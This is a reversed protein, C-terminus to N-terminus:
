GQHNGLLRHHCQAAHSTRSENHHPISKAKNARDAEDRSFSIREALGAMEQGQLEYRANSDELEHVNNRLEREYKKQETIDTHTTVYGGNPMPQAVVSIILGNPLTCEQRLVEFAQKEKGRRAVIEEPDGPGFDGREARFHSIIHCSIGEYIFDPPFEWIDLYKQNWAVLNLDADLISIGQDMSEFTTKLLTSTKAIEREKAESKLIQERLERTRERVRFELEDQVERRRAEAQKRRTIDTGIAGVATIGGSSDVIPFKVTLFTHTGDECEWEEEQEISRGTTLVEQDHTMFSAAQEKAFIEDSTKGRAEEDTVGFLKEAERNVLLYRGETDKIHIKAPSHNVVAQFRKENDSLAKETQEHTAILRSMNKVSPAGKLLGVALLVFGGLYGVVNEIFAEVGTNGIVVFKNLGQFNDTIDFISGLLILSFGGLIFNWGHHARRFNDQGARWLFLVIFLVLLARACEILVDVM